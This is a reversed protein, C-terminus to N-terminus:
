KALWLGHSAQIGAKRQCLLLRSSYKKITPAQARTIRTMTATQATIVLGAELVLIVQVVQNTVLLTVQPLNIITLAMIQPHNAAQIVVIRHHRTLISITAILSTIILAIIDLKIAEIDAAVVVATITILICKIKWAVAWYQLM